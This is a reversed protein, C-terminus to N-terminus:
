EGIPEFLDTEDNDGRDILRQTKFVRIEGAQEVVKDYIKKALSKPINLAKDETTLKVGYGLVRHKKGSDAEFNIGYVKVVGFDGGNLVGSSNRGIPRSKNQFNVRYLDAEVTNFIGKDVNYISGFGGHEKYNIFQSQIEPVEKDLKNLIHQAIREDPSLKKEKGGGFLHSETIIKGVLNKIDNENLRIVKM